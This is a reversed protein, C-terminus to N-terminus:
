IPDKNYHKNALLTSKVIFDFLKVKLSLSYGKM